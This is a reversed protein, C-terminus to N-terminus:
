RESDLMPLKLKRLVHLMGCGLIVAATEGAGVELATLWFPLQYSVSLVGGVIFANFLVPPLMAAYQNKRLLRTCVAAALTALSGFIIDPLIGTYLNALLCGVFLGPVAEACLIPLLTLMESVRCPINGYSIPALLLTLAAYVAAIVASLCLHRIGYRGSGKM